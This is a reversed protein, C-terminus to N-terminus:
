GRLVLAVEESSPGFATGTRARRRHAHLVLYRSLLARALGTACANVSPLAM